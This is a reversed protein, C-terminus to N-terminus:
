LNIVAKEVVDMNYIAGEIHQNEENEIKRLIKLCNDEVYYNPYERIRYSDVEGNTMYVLLKAKEFDDKTM